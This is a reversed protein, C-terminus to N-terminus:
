SIRTSGCCRKSPPRAAWRRPSGTTSCQSWGGASPRPRSPAKAARTGAGQPAPGREDGSARQHHHPRCLRDPPLCPLRGEPQLGGLADPKGGLRERVFPPPADDPAACRECLRRVLRQALVGTLTSALLYDDVGMDMLRTLSAAASNTHLTSLVLHGTLSAQIAMQATELDRIEGVMIIDPDQRLISRLAHAFTLGIKPQVQIQSIGAMQYEIPDEVTFIKSEARNLRNLATYLTTTKGSGTPGTVLIIGNPQALLGTFTELAAGHFGLRAFDLEM